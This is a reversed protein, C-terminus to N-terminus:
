SACRFSRSGWDGSRKESRASSHSERATTAALSRREQMRRDMGPEFFHYSSGGEGKAKYLALDANKLLQDPDAGDDPWVAIGISTGIIVRHGDLDYPEIIADQIRRALAATDNAEQIVGQVIAFEDGGLRAVIDTERVCGRLRETVARLLVDGIAHGLTDNVEKFRDLDLALVAVRRSLHRERRLAEALCEQFLARNPLDTLADHHAMHMIRAEARKRETVDIVAVLVAETGQYKLARSYTVVDLREGDAKIHQWVEETPANIEAGSLVPLLAGRAERPRIDSVSMSRFRDRSYGYLSVAADNVSLFRLSTRDSVWMPLPNNKFLLRFSAERQKLDAIREREKDAELERAEIANHKFIEVAAAVQALEDHGENPIAVDLNGGALALIADNLRGLRALLGRGVYIWAFIIASALSAAAIVILLTQSQTITRQAADVAASSMEEAHKVSAQVQATLDAAKIQSENVLASSDLAAELEAQRAQFLDRVGSGFVLFSEVAARLEGGLGSDEIATLPKGLRASATTMRDRLPRLQDIDPSLAVEILIGLAIHSEARIDSLQRLLLANARARRLNEAMAPAAPKELEELSMALDFRADDLFPALKEIVSRHAEIAREVLDQRHASASLRHDIAAAVAHTSVRLSNAAPQLERRGQLMANMEGYKAKLQRSIDQLDARDDAARLATLIMSYEATQRALTLARSMVPIGDTEIHRLGAGIYQYSFFAVVSALLTLSAIGAFASVLRGRIGFRRAHALRSALGGAGM